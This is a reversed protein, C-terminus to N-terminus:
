FGEPKAIARVTAMIGTQFDTKAISLWRADAGQLHLEDIMKGLYEGAEKVSNINEIDKQSLTRYGKISM